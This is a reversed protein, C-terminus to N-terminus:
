FQGIGRVIEAVEYVLSRTSRGDSVDVVVDDVLGLAQQHVAMVDALCRSEEAEIEWVMECSEELLHCADCRTLEQPFLNKVSMSYPSAEHM